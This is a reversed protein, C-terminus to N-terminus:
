YMDSVHNRDICYQRELLISVCMLSINNDVSQKCGIINRITVM